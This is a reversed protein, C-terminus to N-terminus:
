ENREEEEIIADLLAALEPSGKCWSYDSGQRIREYSEKGDINSYVNGHECRQPLPKALM